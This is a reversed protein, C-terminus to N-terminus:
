RSGVKQFAFETVVGDPGFAVSLAGSKPKKAKAGLPPYFVHRDFFVSVPQFVWRHLHERWVEVRGREEDVGYKWRAAGLSDVRVADPEGLWLRVQQQSTIGPEIRSAVAATPLSETTACAGIVLVIALWLISQRM